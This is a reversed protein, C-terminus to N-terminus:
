HVYKFALNPLPGTEVYDCIFGFTYLMPTREVGQVDRPEDSEAVVEILQSYLSEIRKRQEHTVSVWRYSQRFGDKKIEEMSRAQTNETFSERMIDTWTKKLQEKRKRALDINMDITVLIKARTMRNKYVTAPKTSTDLKKDLTTILQAKLLADLHYQVQQASTNLHHALSAVTCEGLQRIHELISLRKTNKIVAWHGDNTIDLLLVDESDFLKYMNESSNHETM